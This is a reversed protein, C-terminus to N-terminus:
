PEAIRDRGEPELTQLMLDCYSVDILDAGEIAFAQRLALVQAEEHHLDSGAAAVAELEIFSGLRAVEDLHIRV